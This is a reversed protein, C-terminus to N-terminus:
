FAVEPAPKVEVPAYESEGAEFSPEGRGQRFRPQPDSFNVDRDYVTVVLGPADREVSVDEVLGGKVMIAVRLPTPTKLAAIADDIAQRDVEQRASIEEGEAADYIGEGVGSDQEQIAEAVYAAGIELAQLVTVVDGPQPEPSEEQDGQDQLGDAHGDEYGRDYAKFGPARTLAAKIEDRWGTFADVLDAGSVNLDTEREVVMWSDNPCNARAEERTVFPGASVTGCEAFFTAGDFKAAEYRLMSDLVAWLSRGDAPPPMMAEEPALDGNLGMRASDKVVTAAFADDGPAAEFRRLAEQMSLIRRADEVLVNEAVKFGNEDVLLRNDANYSWHDQM